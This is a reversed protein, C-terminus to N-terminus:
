NRQILPLDLHVRDGIVSATGHAENASFMAAAFGGFLIFFLVIGVYCIILINGPDRLIGTQKENRSNQLQMSM